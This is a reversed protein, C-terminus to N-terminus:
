RTAAKDKEALRKGWAARDPAKYPLAESHLDSINAFRDIEPEAVGFDDVVAGGTCIIAAYGNVPMECTQCWADGSAGPTIKQVILHGAHKSM